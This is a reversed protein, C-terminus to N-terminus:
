SHACVDHGGVGKVEDRNVDVLSIVAVERTRLMKDKPARQPISVNEPCVNNDHSLSELEHSVDADCKAGSEAVLNSWTRCHLGVIVDIRPEHLVARVRLVM